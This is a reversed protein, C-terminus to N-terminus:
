VELGNIVIPLPVFAGVVLRAVDHARRALRRRAAKRRPATSKRRWANRAECKRCLGTLPDAVAGCQCERRKHNAAAVILVSSILAPYQM